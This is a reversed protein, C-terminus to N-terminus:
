CRFQVCVCPVLSALVQLDKEQKSKAETEKRNDLAQGLQMALNDGEKFGKKLFAAVFEDASYKRLVALQLHFM